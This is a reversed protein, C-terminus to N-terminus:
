FTTNKLSVLWLTVCHKYNCSLGFHQLRFAAAWLQWVMYYRYDKYYWYLLSANKELACCTVAGNLAVVKFGNLYVRVFYKFVSLGMWFFWLFLNFCFFFSFIHMNYRASVRGPMRFPEFERVSYDLTGWMERFELGRLVLVSLHPWPINLTCFHLADPRHKNANRLAIQQNKETTEPPGTRGVSSMGGVCSHAMM